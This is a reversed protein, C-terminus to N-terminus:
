QGNETKFQTKQLGGKKTTYTIKKWFTRAQMFLKGSVRFPIYNILSHALNTKGFWFFGSILYEFLKRRLPINFPLYGYQPQSSRNKRSIRIFAGRKKFDLMHSHMNITQHTSVQSLSIVKEKVMKQILAHGKSTRTLVLSWGKKREEYIPAWADGFSIDALENTLDVCLLCRKIAYFPILYNAYFKELEIIRNNKIEVRMKGPWEGARFQLSKVQDLSNVGQNKLFSKVATFHLNIGCYSGLIYAINKVAPHKILQLKRLSHTHCSLGVFAVKGKFTKLKKLITNVPVISYKSQCAKIIEKPNRALKVEPKYPKKSNFGVVVAGNIKKSKLLYLLTATILGGSASLRRTKDDRSYGVYTQSFNGLFRNGAVKDFVFRELKPFPVNKGPCTQWSYTQCAPCSCEKTKEPLCQGLEDKFKISNTQCLGVCTGCRTCLDQGIVEKKLRQWGSDNQKM